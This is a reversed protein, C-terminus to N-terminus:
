GFTKLLQALVGAIVLGVGWKLHSLETKIVALDTKIPALAVELDQKTVLEAQAEAIARVVAEAAPRQIGAAVMQDVLKLTDITITTM